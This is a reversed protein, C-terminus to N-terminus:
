EISGFLRQSQIRCQGLLDLYLAQQAM